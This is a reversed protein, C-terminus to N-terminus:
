YLPSTNKIISWIRSLNCKVSSHCLLHRGTSEIKKKKSINAFQPVGSVKLKTPSNKDKYAPKSPNGKIPAKAQKNM